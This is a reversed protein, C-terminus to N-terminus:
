RNSAVGRAAGGTAVGGRDPVGAQSLEVYTAFTMVALALVVGVLTLRVIELM